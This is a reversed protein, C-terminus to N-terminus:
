SDQCHHEIDRSVIKVNQSGDATNTVFYSIINRFERIRSNEGEREEVCSCSNYM